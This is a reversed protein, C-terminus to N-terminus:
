TAATTTPQISLTQWTSSVPVTVREDPRPFVSIQVHGADLAASLAEFKPWGQFVAIDCGAVSPQDVGNPYAAQSILKVLAQEVEALGGNRTRRLTQVRWGMETKEAARM